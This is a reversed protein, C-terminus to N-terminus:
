DPSSAPWDMRHLGYEHRCFRASKSTHVCSGDEITARKLPTDSLHFVLPIFYTGMIQYIYQTSNMGLKEAKSTREQNM